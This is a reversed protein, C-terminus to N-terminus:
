YQDRRCMCHCWVCARRCYVQCRRTTRVVVTGAPILSVVPSQFAVDKFGFSMRMHRMLIDHDVTDFAATLDLLILAALDGRDIALLTLCYVYNEPLLIECPLTAVRKLRPQIKIIVNNCM